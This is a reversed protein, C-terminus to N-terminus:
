AARLSPTRGGRGGSISETQSPTQRIESERELGVGVGRRGRKIEREGSRWHFIKSNCSTNKRRPNGNQLQSNAMVRTEKNM